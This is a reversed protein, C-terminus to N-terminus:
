EGSSPQSSPGSSVTQAMPVWKLGVGAQGTPSDNATWYALVLACAKDNSSTIATSDCDTGPAPLVNGNLLSSVYDKVAWASALDDGGGTTASTSGAITSGADAIKNTDLELSMVGSTETDILRVYASNQVTKWGATAGEGTGLYGVQVSGATSVKPQYTNGGYTTVFEYVNKTTPVTTDVAGTTTDITGGATSGAQLITQRISGATVLGADNTATAGTLAATTAIQAAPINVQYVGNNEMITVYDTTSQSNAAAAAELKKWDATNTTGDVTNHGLYLSTGDTTPAKPQFNGGQTTVFDYVAKTTPYATDSTNNQGTGSTVIATAKNAKKEAYDVVNKSTPVTANTSGGTTADSLTTTGNASEGDILAKVATASVLKNGDTGTFAGAVGNAIPGTLQAATTAVGEKAEVTWTGADNGSGETAQIYTNDGQITIAAGAVEGKVFKYVNLASPAKDDPSNSAITTANNNTADTAVIKSDVYLKSTVTKADNADAMASQAFVAAAFGVFVLGRIKVKM